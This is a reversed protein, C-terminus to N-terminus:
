RPQCSCEPLLGVVQGGGGGGGVRVRLAGMVYSLTCIQSPPGVGMKTWLLLQVFLKLILFSPVCVHTTCLQLLVDLGVKALIFSGFTFTICRHFGMELSAGLHFSCRRFMSFYFVKPPLYFPNSLYEGKTRTDGSTKCTDSHIAAGGCTRRRSTWSDCGQNEGSLGGCYRSKRENDVAANQFAM